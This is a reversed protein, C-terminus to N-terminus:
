FETVWICYLLKQDRLYMSCEVHEKEGTVKSKILIDRVSGILVLMIGGVRTVLLELCDKALNCFSGGSIELAAHQSAGASVSEDHDSQHLLM